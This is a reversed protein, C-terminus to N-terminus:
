VCLWEEKRGQLTGEDVAGDKATLSTGLVLKM